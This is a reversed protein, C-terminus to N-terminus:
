ARRGPQARFWRDAIPDGIVPRECAESSERRTRRSAGAFWKEDHMTFSSTTALQSTAPKARSLSMVKEKDPNALALLVGAHRPTEGRM